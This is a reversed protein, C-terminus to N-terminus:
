LEDYHENLEEIASDLDMIVSGIEDSEKDTLELGILKIDLDQSFKVFKRVIRWLENRRKTDLEDQDTEIKDMKNEIELQAVKVMDTLKEIDDKDYDHFMVEKTNILNLASELIDRM